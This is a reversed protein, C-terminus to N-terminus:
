AKQTQNKPRILGLEVARHYAFGSKYGRARAMQRLDEYTKARKMAEQYTLKRWYNFRAEAETLEVMETHEQHTPGNRPGTLAAQHVVGCVPCFAGEFIAYCAYCTTLATSERKPKTAELSWNQPWHVMGHRATNGAHDLVLAHTKGPAPRLARGIQQFHLSLSKTPRFLIVTSIEPLDFGESVINYNTLVLTEGSRFSDVRKRRETKDLKGDISAAPIGAANFEAATREAATVSACFAVTSKGGSHKQWEKIVNGYLAPRDMIAAIDAQNYDGKTTRVGKLDPTDPGIYRVPVLWGADTLEQIGPGEVIFDYFEGLGQTNSMRWATATVGLVYANPYSNVSKQYGDAVAHHGEDIIIFDFDPHRSTRNVLSQVSAVQVPTLPTEPYGAQIIGHHCNHRDLTQSIQEILEHRHVIVCVRKGKSASRQVMHSFTHTKGAGTPLVLLPRKYGQAFAATVDAVAKQQYDRLPAAM